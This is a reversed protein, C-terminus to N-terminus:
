VDHYWVAHSCCPSIASFRRSVEGITIILIMKKYYTEINIEEQKKLSVTVVHFTEEAVPSQAVPFSSIVRPRLVCAPEGSAIEHLCHFPFLEDQSHVRRVGYLYSNTWLVYVAIVHCTHIRGQTWICLSCLPHGSVVLNFRFQLSSAPYHRSCCLRTLRSVNFTLRSLM